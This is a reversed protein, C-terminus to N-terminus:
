PVEPAAIPHSVTVDAVCPANENMNEDAATVQLTYAGAAVVRGDMGRGDWAITENAATAPTPVWQVVTADADLVELWWWAPAESARVSLQVTDAEIGSGPDGDPRLETTDPTCASITPADVAVAGLALVWNSPSTLWDGALFNGGGDDRVAGPVTLSWVGESGDLSRAPTLTVNTGETSLTADDIAVPDGSPDLLTFATPTISSGFIAESFALEITPWADTTAGRPSFDVPIPPRADGTVTATARGHAAGSSVGGHVSATAAVDTGAVSWTVSAEGLSDLLVALGSGTSTITTTGSTLEGLDTRVALTGGSAPDGTCDSASYVVTTVGATGSGATLNPDDVTVTVPGVPEGDSSGVWVRATAVDACADDDVVITRLARAGAGSWRATTDPSTSRSFASTGTHLHYAALPASGATSASASVTVDSTQGSVLCLRLDTVGGVTLDASPPGACDFDVVDVPDSTGTFTDDDVQLTDQLVVNDWALAVTATGDTVTVDDVSAAADATSWLELTSDVDDRPNGYADIAQLQVDILEDVEVWTSGPDVSYAAHSGAVVQFPDSAGLAVSASRAQLTNAETARVLTATGTGEGAGDLGVTAPALEGATDSVTVSTVTQVTYPNDFADLALINYRLPQGATLTDDDLTFAVRALGANTVEVANSDGSIGLAPVSATVVTAPAAQTVTCLSYYLGDAPGKYRATCSLTGTTDTLTLASSGGFAELPAPNQYPDLAQTVIQVGAGATVPGDIPEVLVEVATAPLVEFSRSRGSLGDDSEATLTVASGARELVISCAAQGTFFEGCAVSGIGAEADLGGLNDSFTLEASHDVVPNGYADEAVVVVSQSDVGAVVAEAFPTVGYHDAPGALIDLPLTQVDVLDSGLAGVVRLRNEACGGDVTAGTLVADEIVLQDAITVVDVYAEGSRTCTEQITAVLLEGRTPNGDADLLRLDITTPEGAVLPGEPLGIDITKISAPEFRIRPSQVEIHANLGLGRVEVWVDDVAASTLYLDAGGGSDLTGQITGDGTTKQDVLGAQFAVETADGSETRARVEIDVPAPVDVGSLDSLQLELLAYDGVDYRVEPISIAVTAARTDTVTFADVLRDSAGGPGTVRLDYRGPDIGAPVVAALLTDSQREVGELPTPPDTGLVLSFGDDVAIEQAGRAELRPLFREGDILVETDAGRYGWEPSVGALQPAPGEPTCGLAAAVSLPVLMPIPHHTRM